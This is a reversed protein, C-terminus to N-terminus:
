PGRVAPRKGPPLDGIWTAAVLWNGHATQHLGDRQMHRTGAVGELLFPVQAVKDRAALDCFVRQFAAISAAGHNPPLRM